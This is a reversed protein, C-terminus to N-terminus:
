AKTEAHVMREAALTGIHRSAPDLYRERYADGGVEELVNLGLRELMAPLRAPDLGTRWPAGGRKAREMIRRDVESAGPGQIVDKRIYTFTIGSGPGGAAGVFKLIRDVAAASLYQTVGELVFFTRVGTRFGAGALALRLDDHELDVPVLAVNGPVAGLARKLATRKAAQTGPHDVEFVPIDDIGAIRCARTDFGAGLVVVQDLGQQIARSLADDIYRTRCLLNGVVGPYARERRAMIAEAAGLLALARLLMRWRRPVLRLSVPDDILRENVPRGSELGRLVAIGLWLNAKGVAAETELTTTHADGETCFQGGSLGECHVPLGSRPSM